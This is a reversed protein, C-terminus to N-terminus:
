GVPFIERPCSFFAYTDWVVEHLYAHYDACACVVM